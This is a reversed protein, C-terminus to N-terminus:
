LPDNNEKRKFVRLLYFLAPFILLSGILLAWALLNITVAPAASNFLTLSEADKFIVIKPFYVSYFASIIFLLQAGAIIRAQWIKRTEIAKWLLPLAITALAIFTLSFPNSIFSRDFGIGEIISALFVFAGATVMILSNIKSKRILEPMLIEDSNDGILFVSATFAFITTIFLGTSISFLNLWPNLYSEWFGTPHMMMKGSVVAGILMGLFFSVIFSSVAFIRSYVEQSNDKIADYHRFTFATGRLIIGVLLLILPIYLTISIQAYIAPFANFLIVITIILWMHNAEWIPAIAKTIVARTLKKNKGRTFLEIIGAGFDAGGLLCYLYVSALLFIIVVYLM